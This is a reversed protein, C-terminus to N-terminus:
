SAQLQHEGLETYVFFGTHHVSNVGGITVEGDVQSDLYDAFVSEEGTDVLSEVSARVGEVSM